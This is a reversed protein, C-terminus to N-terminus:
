DTNNAAAKLNEKQRNSALTIDDYISWFIMKFRVPVPSLMSSKGVQKEKDTSKSVPLM